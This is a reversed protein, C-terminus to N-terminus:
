GCTRAASKAANRRNRWITCSASACWTARWRSAFVSRRPGRRRRREDGGADPETEESEDEAQQAKWLEEFLALQEKSLQESKRSRQAELLERLLSRYKDKEASEHQLQAALEGVIKRLASADDPLSNLDIPPM